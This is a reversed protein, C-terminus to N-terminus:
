TVENPRDRRSRFPSVYWRLPVRRKGAHVTTAYWRCENALFETYDATGLYSSAFLFSRGNGGREAFGADDFVWYDYATLYGVAREPNGIRAANLALVPRGWGFIKEDTWIEAVKDATQLGVAPDVAPTDPLFGQLMIVSRPDDNLHPNEWWSGDLGEYVAYLGDAQPPPALNEAM